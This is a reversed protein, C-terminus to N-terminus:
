PHQARGSLRRHLATTRGQLLEVVRDDSCGLLHAVRDAVEGAHLAKAGARGPSRVGHSVAVGHDGGLERQLVEGAPDQVQVVLDGLQVPEDTRQDLLERGIQKLEFAHSDLVSAFQHDGRPLIQVPQAGLRAERHHTAGARDSGRAPLSLAVAEVAAPVAM